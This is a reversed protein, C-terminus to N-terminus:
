GADSAGKAANYAALAAVTEEMEKTPNHRALWPSCLAGAKEALVDAAALRARLTAIEADQADLKDRAQALAAAVDAREAALAKQHERMEADKAALAAAALLERARRAVALWAGEGWGGVGEVHARCLARALEEDTM